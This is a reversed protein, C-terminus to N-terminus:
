IEERYPRATRDERIISIAPSEIAGLLDAASDYDIISSASSFHRRTPADALSTAMSGLKIGGGEISQQTREAVVVARGAACRVSEDGRQGIRTLPVPGYEVGIALDLQDIGKLIEQCLNFSSKMGAACLAAERVAAAGDDQREGEAIVGQICDGIFRVRKGHFDDKLVDNLEERIVHINRAAVKIAEPGTHIASDVFATFGDIDAFLSAMGM